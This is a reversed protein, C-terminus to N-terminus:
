LVFEKEEDVRSWSEPSPLFRQIEINQFDATTVHMSLNLIIMILPLFSLLLVTISYHLLLSVLLQNSDNQNCHFVLYYMCQSSSQLVRVIDGM